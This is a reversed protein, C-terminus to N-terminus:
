LWKWHLPKKTKPDKYASCGTKIANSIKCGEGKPSYFRAADALSNFSKKTEICFCKKSAKLNNEECIKLLKKNNKARESISKAYQKRYEDSKSWYSKKIAAGTKENRERKQEDTLSACYRKMGISSAESIEKLKEPNNKYYKKLSNSIKIKLSKLENENRFGWSLRNLWNGYNYNVNKENSVKDEMICITEMLDMTYRDKVNLIIDKKLLTDEPHKKYYSSSTIYSDNEKRRVHSGIYTAGSTFTLKYIYYLIGM